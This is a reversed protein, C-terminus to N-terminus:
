QGRYEGGPCDKQRHGQHGRPLGERAHGGSHHPRAARHGDEAPGQQGSRGGREVAPGVQGGHSPARPPTSCGGGVPTRANPVHYTEQNQSPRHSDGWCLRPHGTSLELTRCPLPCGRRTQVPVWVEPDTPDASAWLDAEPLPLLDLVQAFVRMTPLRGGRVHVGPLGAVDGGQRLRELLVPVVVEGEGCVGYDADLYALAAEPFISYGAETPWRLSTCGRGRGCRRRPAKRMMCPSWSSTTGSACLTLSASVSWRAPTSTVGENTVRTHDLSLHELRTLGRLHELGADTIPTGYLFLSQLQHLGKLRALGADTVRAESLTLLRLDVLEALNELGADTIKPSLYLERMRPLAKLHVLDLDTVTPFRSFWADLKSPLGDGLGGKPYLNAVTTDTFLDDGLSVRLWAPGSLTAGYEWHGSADRRYDYELMGGLKELEAVAEKQRKARQIESALWSCPVAVVLVLVFLSRLSFQFRCRFLLSAAFWLLMPLFAVGVSAVATLVAYGKHWVPWGLRASLWLLGEIALLGLILRDPTLHFWRVSPKPVTPQPEAVSM